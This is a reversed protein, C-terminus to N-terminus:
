KYKNNIKKKQYDYVSFDFESKEYNKTRRKGSYKAGNCLHCHRHHRRRYWSTNELSNIAKEITKIKEDNNSIKKENILKKQLQIKIKISKEIKSPFKKAKRNRINRTDNIIRSVSPVAILLVIGLIIIVALLEILTFGKKNM